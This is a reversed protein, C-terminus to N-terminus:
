QHWRRFWHRLLARLTPAPESVPEPWAVPQMVNVTGGREVIRRMAREQANETIFRFQGFPISDDRRVPLGLLTAGDDLMSDKWNIGDINEVAIREATAASVHIETDRRDRPDVHSFHEYLNRMLDDM